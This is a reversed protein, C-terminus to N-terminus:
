PETSVVGLATFTADENRRVIVMDGSSPYVDTFATINVQHTVLIISTKLTMSQLWHELELTQPLQLDQKRYFSNLAPSDTVADFGLLQATDKCRCWQSTFVSAQTIGNDRLTQGINVAQSRGTENLNRQTTCDDIDFNEPDGNGPALAHRILAFHNDTALTKLLPHMDAARATSTIGILCLAILLFNRFSFLTM